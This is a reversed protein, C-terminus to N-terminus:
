FDIIINFKHALCIHPQLSLPPKLLTFGINIRGRGRSWILWYCLGLRRFHFMQLSGSTEIRRKRTQSLVYEMRAEEHRMM